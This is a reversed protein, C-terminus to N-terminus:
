PAARSRLGAIYELEKKAQDDNPDLELARRYAQEADDLKKMEVLAYGQGRLARGQWQTPTRGGPSRAAGDPAAALEEANKRAQEFADFAQQWASERLIVEGLECLYMPDGPMLELARQLLPKAQAPDGLEVLCYAKYYIADPWEPGLVVVDGGGLAAELAQGLGDTSSRGCRVAARSGAYRADFLAVVKDFNQEIAERCKGDKALAIGAQLLERAAASQADDGGGLVITSGGGADPAPASPAVPEVPKAAADAPPDDGMWSGGPATVTGADPPQTTGGSKKCAQAWTAVALVIAGWTVLKTM